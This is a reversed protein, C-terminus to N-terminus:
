FITCSLLERRRVAANISLLHRVRLHKAFTPSPAGRCLFISVSLVPAAFCPATTSLSLPLTVLPAGRNGPSPSASLGLLSAKPLSARGPVVIDVSFVSKFVLSFKPCQYLIIVNAGLRLTERSAGRGLQVPQRYVLEAICVKPVIISWRGRVPTAHPLPLCCIDAFILFRSPGRVPALLRLLWCSLLLALTALSVGGFGPTTPAQTAGLIM